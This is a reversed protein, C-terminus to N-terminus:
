PTTSSSSVAPTPAISHSYAIPSCIGVSHVQMPPISQHPPPQEIESNYSPDQHHAIEISSYGISHQHEILEAPREQANQHSDLIVPIHQQHRQQHQHQHQLEEQDEASVTERDSTDSSISAQTTHQGPVSSHLSEASNLASFYECKHVCTIHRKFNSKDGTEYKCLTCKYPKERTHVRIHKNLDVKSKSHYQCFPCKHQRHQRNSLDQPSVTSSSSDSLNLSTLSSDQKRPSLHKKQQILSCDVVPLQSTLHEESTGVNPGEFEALRDESATPIEIKAILPMNEHSSQFIKGKENKSNEKSSELLLELKKKRKQPSKRPKSDNPREIMRRKFSTKPKSNKKSSVPKKYLTSCAPKENTMVSITPLSQQLSPSIVQSAVVPASITPTSLILSSSPVSHIIELQHLNESNKKQFQDVPQMTPQYVVYHPEPGRLQHLSPSLIPPQIDQQQGITKERESNREGHTLQLPSHNVVYQSKPGQFMRVALMEPEVIAICQLSFLGMM